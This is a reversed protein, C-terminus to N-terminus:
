RRLLWVDHCWPTATASMALLLMPIDLKMGCELLYLGPIFVIMEEGLDSKREM